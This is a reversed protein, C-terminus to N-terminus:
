DQIPRKHFFFLILFNLTRGGLNLKLCARILAIKLLEKTLTPFLFTSLWGFVCIQSLVLHQKIETRVLGFLYRPSTLSALTQRLSM